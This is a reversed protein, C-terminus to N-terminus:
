PRGSVLVTRLLVLAAPMLTVPVPPNAPAETAAMSGSPIMTAIGGPAVVPAEAVIDPALIETTPTVVGVSDTDIEEAPLEITAPCFEVRTTLWITSVITTSAVEEVDTVKVFPTRTVPGPANKNPSPNALLKEPCVPM